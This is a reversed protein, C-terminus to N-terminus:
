YPNGCLPELNEFLYEVLLIIDTVDVTGNCDVDGVEVVPQPPHQEEFVFDLLCAIDQVTIRGNWNVDGRLKWVKLVVQVSLPSNTAGPAVVSLTGPYEGLTMGEPSVVLPSADPVSGSTVAPILWPISESIEWNMCGGNYNYISLGNCDQPGSDEQYPIVLPTGPVYILAPGSAAQYNYLVEIPQPTNAAWRSAVLITDHYVGTPTEPLIANVQYTHPANLRTHGGVIEFRDEPYILKLEMPNDGGNNTVTFQASPLSRGYGQWCQYVDFQISNTSLQIEAPYELLRMQCEVMVPSNTAQDSYV